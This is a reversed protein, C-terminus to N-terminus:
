HSQANESLTAKRTQDGLMTPNPTPNIKQSPETRPLDLAPRLSAMRLGPSVPGRVARRVSTPAESGDQVVQQVLQPRVAVPASDDCRQQQFIGSVLM